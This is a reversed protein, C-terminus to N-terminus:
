KRRDARFKLWKAHEPSKVFEAFEPAGTLEGLDLGFKDLLTELHGRAADHRNEALAVRILTVHADRHPQPAGAATEAAKRAAALDDAAIHINARLVNLYPDTDVAKDLRDVCGLAQDFERKLLYADISVFDVSADKPYLRRIDEIAAAYEEEGLQQAAQLRVLLTPKENRVSAPLSRYTDMAGKANQSRLQEAMQQLKGLSKVFESEEGQLRELLGRNEHAAVPLILRRITQSFFEGSLFVYVDPALVAGSPRRALPFELYNIGGEDPLVLRFLARREGEITRTRLHDFTGGAAVKQGVETLLGGTRGFGDKFGKILGAKKNAPLEIGAMASEIAADLDLLAHAAAVDGVRMAAVMKEAFSASEQDSIPPGDHHRNPQYVLKVAAPAKTSKDACGVAALVIPLFLFFAALRAFKLM